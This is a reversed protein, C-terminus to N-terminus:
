LYYELLKLVSKWLHKLSNIMETPKTILYYIIIPVASLLSLIFSSFPLSIYSWFSHKYKTTVGNIAYKWINIIREKYHLLILFCLIFYFIFRTTFGKVMSENMFTIDMLLINVAMPIFVLVGLIVTRNYILLLGCIIQLIGVTSKFPEHDFLYWMVRFLSLDQLPTGLEKQSVGFQGGDVLKSYGYSIFNYALVFRAVLIFYDYFKTESFAIIRKKM